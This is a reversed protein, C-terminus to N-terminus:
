DVLDKEIIIGMTLLKYYLDKKAQIGYYYQGMLVVIEIDEWSMIETKYTKVVKTTNKSGQYNTGIVTDKTGYKSSLYEFAENWCDYM